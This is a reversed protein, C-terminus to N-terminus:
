RCLGSASPASMTMCEVVFNRPPWESVTPPAAMAFDFSCTSHSENTCFLEPAIREGISEHSTSRPM